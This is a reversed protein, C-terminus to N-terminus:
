LPGRDGASYRYTSPQFDKLHIVCDKEEGRRMQCERALVGDPTFVKWAGEEFDDQYTGEAMLGGEQYYLKLPGNLRSDVYNKVSRPNGNVYFQRWEGVRKGDQMMGRTDISGDSHYQTWQGQLRDAVYYARTRLRGYVDFELWEGTRGDVGMCYYKPYSSNDEVIRRSNEPCQLELGEQFPTRSAQHCGTLVGVCLCFPIWKKIM